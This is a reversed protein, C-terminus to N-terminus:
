QKKRSGDTKKNHRLIHKAVRQGSRVAAEITSPLEIDLWDGCLYLDPDYTREKINTKYRLNKLVWTAKAEKRIYYHEVMNKFQINYLADLTKCVESFILSPKKDIWTDAASTIMSIYEDKKDTIFAPRDFMWHLPSNWFGVMKASQKENISFFTKRDEQKKLKVYITVIPSAKLNTIYRLSDLLKKIRSERALFLLQDPPLALVLKKSFFVEQDTEVEYIKERTKYFSIVAARNLVKGQKSEIFQKAPLALVESLGKNALGISNAEPDSSLFTKKLVVVLEAACAQDMSQNLTALCLPQWFRDLLIQTQHLEELWSKATKNRLNEIKEEKLAKGVKIVKFRDFFPIAKFQMMAWFLSWIANGSGISFVGQKELGKLIIPEKKLFQVDKSSGIRKLFRKSEQYCGMLIHQGNDLVAGVRKNLVSSSRGGLFPSKELVLVSKGKKALSSACALGSVGAGVVICDWVKENKM